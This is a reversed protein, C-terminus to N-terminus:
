PKFAAKNAAGAKEAATRADDADKKQRALERQPAERDDLRISQAIAIRSLSSLRPSTVILTFRAGLTRSSFDTSQYLVVAYDTDGWRGIPKGTDGELEAIGPTTRAVALLPAGYSTSIAAILDAGTMGETRGREYDVVIRYLQDDYFSFVM